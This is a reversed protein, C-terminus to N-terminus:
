AMGRRLKRLELGVILGLLLLLVLAAGGQVVRAVVLRYRQTAPDYRFCRLIAREFSSGIDGAAAEFLALELQKAKVDPGYLYRSLRGDPTLVVFV